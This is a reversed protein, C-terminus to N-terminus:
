PASGVRDLLRPLVRRAALHEEALERAARRHRAYDTHLADVATAVGDGDRFDFLGEGM